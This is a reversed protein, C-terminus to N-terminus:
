MCNLAFSTQVLVSWSIEIGIQMYVAEGDVGRSRVLICVRTQTLLAIDSECAAGTKILSRFELDCETNGVFHLLFLPTATPGPFPSVRM